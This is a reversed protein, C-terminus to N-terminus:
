KINFVRKIENIEVLKQRRDLVNEQTRIAGRDALRLLKWYSINLRDAAEKVSVWEEATTNM